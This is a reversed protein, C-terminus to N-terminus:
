DNGKKKVSKKEEFAEDVIKTMVKIENGWWKNGYLSYLYGFGLGVLHGVSDIRHYKSLALLVLEFCIVFKAADKASFHTDPPAFIFSVRSQPKQMLEYMVLACLSGSLGVSIDTSRLLLYRVNCVISTLAGTTLLFVLFHQHSMSDLSGRAVPGNGHWGITLVYLALMNCALHTVSGHLFISTIPSFFSSSASSGFMRVLRESRLLLMSGIFCTTSFAILQIIRRNFLTDPCNLYKEIIDKWINDYVDFKVPWGSLKYRTEVIELSATFSKVLFLFPLTFVLQKIIPRWSFVFKPSVPPNEVTKTQSTRGVRGSNFRQTRSLSRFLVQVPTKLLKQCSHLRSFM